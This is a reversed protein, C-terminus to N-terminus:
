HFCAMYDKKKQSLCVYSIENIIIPEICRPICNFFMRSSWSCAVRALTHAAMNAQRKTFKVEYNTYCHLISTISSIISNFESIGHQNTHVVDVVTKSDSEFVINSWGHGHACAVRMAELLAKAEGEAVSVKFSCTGSGAEVFSGAADRICWGWALNNPNQAFSADVNCKWWGDRSKQWRLLQNQPADRSIPQDATTSNRTATEVCPDTISQQVTNVARWEGIMHGARLTVEKASDKVGNWVWNNRQNWICWVVMAFLGAISDAETRCIDFIITKVDNSALLRPEIIDRLGAEFWVQQSDHCGFLVHWDDEDNNTCLPCESPCSVHLM